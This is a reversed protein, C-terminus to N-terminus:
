GTRIIKQNNKSAEISFQKNFATIGNVTISYIDKPLVPNISITKRKLDPKIGLLLRLFFIPAAASWAQPSAATPYPVPFSTVARDFGAFVEPLRYNFYSSAAITDTIIRLALEPQGVKLLGAAIFSNDHPWVTGRHYILPNYGEDKTSMTRVGWGSYLKDSFLHKIISSIKDEEVIESWLLHGISSTLADIQKKDKDLGLAFYGKDNIWFAKNFCEKLDAAQQELDEALKLDKWVNRAIEATRVKADYVYAQVDSSAIPTKAIQGNEFMMSDWSDRWNQNELGKASKRQYEVFGDKDMDGYDDIWSLAAIAATKMKTVFRDSVGGFRYIESLLILFLPTADATGYYPFPVWDRFYAAEGFRMEHLIKGPQEDREPNVEKGQYKALFKLIGLSLEPGFIITQFATILSDRGFIAVFWPIGAAPLSTIRGATEEQYIRLAALDKLSQNFARELDDWDTVLKVESWRWGQLVKSREKIRSIRTATITKRGILFAVSLSFTLHEDPALKVSFYVSNGKVVVPKNFCIVTTRRFAERAYSFTLQNEKKRYTKVILRKKVPRKEQTISKVEFIDSFDADFTLSLTVKLEKERNNIIEIDENFVKTITRKCIITLDFGSLKSSSSNTSVITSSDFGTQQATLLEPVTDNILLSLQSLHRVDASFLGYYDQNNINGSPDSILFINGSSIILDGKNM